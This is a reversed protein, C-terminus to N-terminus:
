TKMAFVMNESIAALKMGENYVFALLSVIKIGFRKKIFACGNM